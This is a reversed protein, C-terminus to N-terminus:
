TLALAPTRLCWLQCIKWAAVKYMAQFMVAGSSPPRSATSGVATAAAAASARGWHWAHGSTLILHDQSIYLIGSLEVVVSNHQDRGLLKVLLPELACIISLDSEEALTACATGAPLSM